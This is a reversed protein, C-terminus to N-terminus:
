PFSPTFPPLVRDFAAIGLHGHLFTLTPGLPAIINFEREVVVEVDSADHEDDSRRKSKLIVQEIWRAAQQIDYRQYSSIRGNAGAEDASQLAPAFEKQNGLPFVEFANAVQLLREGMVSVYRKQM